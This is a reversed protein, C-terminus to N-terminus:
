FRDKRRRLEGFVEAPPAWTDRGVANAVKPVDARLFPNTAKEAAITTPLTFRGNARLERVEAARAVLAKNDPEVTLAKEKLEEISSLLWEKVLVLESTQRSSYLQPQLNKLSDRSSM